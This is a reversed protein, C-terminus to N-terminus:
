NMNEVMYKPTLAEKWCSCRWLTCNEIFDKLTLDWREGCRVRTVNIINNNVNAFLKFIMSIGLPDTIVFEFYFREDYAWTTHGGIIIRKDIVWQNVEIDENCLIRGDVVDYEIILVKNGRQCNLQKM